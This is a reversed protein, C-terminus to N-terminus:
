LRVKYYLVEIFFFIISVLELYARLGAFMCFDCFSVISCTTCHNIVIINIEPTWIM